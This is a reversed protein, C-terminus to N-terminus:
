QMNKGETDCIFQGCTHPNIEPSETNNWQYRHRNQALIMSSQNSYSHQRFLFGLQELEIKKERSITKTIWPRKHRWVSKLTIKGTRHLCAMQFKIPITNFRYIARPLIIFNMLKHYFSKLFHAYLTCVEVYYFGYIVVGCSIVNLPSFCLANERLDPVLCPHGSKNSKNWKPSRSFKLAMYASIKEKKKKTVLNTFKHFLCKRLLKILLIVASNIVCYINHCSFYVCM